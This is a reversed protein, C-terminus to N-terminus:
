VVSKRYFLEIEDELSDQIIHFLNEWGQENLYELESQSIPIPMLFQIFKSETEISKLYEILYYPRLFLLHRMEKRDNSDKGMIEPIVLGEILKINNNVIYESIASIVNVFNEIRRHTLGVIETGIKKGEQFGEGSVESLGVTCFLYHNLYEEEDETEPMYIDQEAEMEMIQFSKLKRIQYTSTQYEHGGEVTRVFEKITENISLKTKSSEKGKENMRISLNLLTDMPYKKFFNKQNETSEFFYEYEEDNLCLAVLWKVKKNDMVVKMSNIHLYDSQVLLLHKLSTNPLIKVLENRLIVEDGIPRNVYLFRFQLYELINFATQYSYKDTIMAIEYRFEEIEERLITRKNSVSITSLVTLNEQVNESVLISRDPIFEDEIIQINTIPFARNFEHTILKADLTTLEMNINIKLERRIDIMRIRIKLTNNYQKYFLRKRDYFYKNTRM